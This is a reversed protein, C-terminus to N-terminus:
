TFVLVFCTSCQSKATDFIRLQLLENGDVISRLHRTHSKYTMKKVKERYKDFREVIQVQQHVRKIDRSSPKSPDMSARQVIMEIVKRSM